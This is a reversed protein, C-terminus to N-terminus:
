AERARRLRLGIAAAGLAVGAVAALTVAKRPGFSALRDRARDGARDLGDLAREKAEYGWHHRTVDILRIGCHACEQAGAPVAHGCYGCPAMEAM